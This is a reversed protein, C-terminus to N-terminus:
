AKKSWSMCWGNRNVYKGQFTECAAHKDSSKGPVCDAKGSPCKAFKECNYCFAKKDSRGAAKTADETYQMAKAVPDTAPDVNPQAAAAFAVKPLAFALPTIALAQLITRRQIPQKL